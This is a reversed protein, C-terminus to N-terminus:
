LLRSSDLQGNLADCGTLGDASIHTSLILLLAIVIASLSAACTSKIM